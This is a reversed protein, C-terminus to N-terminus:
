GRIGPAQCTAEHVVQGAVRRPGLDPIGVPPDYVGNEVGGRRRVVPQPREDLRDGGALKDSRASPASNLPIAHDRGAEVIKGSGDIDGPRGGLM